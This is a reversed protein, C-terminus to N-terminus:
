DLVLGGKLDVQFEEEEPYGEQIAESRLADGM